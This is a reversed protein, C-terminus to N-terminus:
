QAAFITNRGPKERFVGVKRDGDVERMEYIAQLPAAMSETGATPAATQKTNKKSSGCAVIALCALSFVLSKM